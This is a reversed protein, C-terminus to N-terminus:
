NTIDGIIYDGVNAGNLDIFKDCKPVENEVHGIVLVCGKWHDILYKGKIIDENSMASLSEDLILIKPQNIMARLLLVLKQSSVPLDKFKTQAQNILDVSELYRYITDKQQQTLKPPIYSGTQFGTSIAQEVTLNKPFIAHLEPSTFGIQKNTDFYNTKGTARPQGNLKIHKNWSQPHDLTILSLLTTKGSGNKGRIHWKEGDRVTWSLNKLAPKGRYLVNVNDMELIPTESTTSTQELAHFLKSEVAKKLSLQHDEHKEKLIRLMEVLDRKPGSKVIGTHDVIAVKEIWDPITDQIKLGLCVTTPLATKELVSSINKTAVPDLGLFPDEVLLLDPRGYLSKAIRARRFQGNSLTTIYKQQFGSLDVKDLLQGLFVPDIKHQSNYSINAIFDQVTEDVEADKYFEYRSSLHTFGGSSDTAGHGFSGNNVFQLLEVKMDPKKLSLPYSRGTSTPSVNFSGKLTQLFKSRYSDGIIAWKEGQFIEFNIPEQFVRHGGRNLLGETVLCKSLRVISSM